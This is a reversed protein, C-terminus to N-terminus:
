QLTDHMVSTYSWYSCCVYTIGLDTFYQLAHDGAVGHYVLDGRSLITLTDFLKYISYRPQHISVIIVRDQKSLSYLLVFFLPRILCTIALYSVYEKLLKMVSTATSADLGTTPEDLFLIGPAIILEM